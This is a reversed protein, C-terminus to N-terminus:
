SSDGDSTRRGGNSDERKQQKRAQTKGHQIQVPLQHPSLTQVLNNFHM